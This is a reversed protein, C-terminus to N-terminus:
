ASFYVDTEKDHFYYSFGEYNVAGPPGFLAWLRSLFNGVSLYTGRETLDKGEGWNRIKTEYRLKGTPISDHNAREFRKRDITNVSM